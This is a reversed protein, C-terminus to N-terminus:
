FIYIQQNPRLCLVIQRDQKVINKSYLYIPGSVIITVASIVGIVKKIMSKQTM